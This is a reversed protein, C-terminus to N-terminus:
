PEYIGKWNTLYTSLTVSRTQSGETWSVIATVKRCSGATTCWSLADDSFAITRTFLTNAILEPCSGGLKWEDSVKQLCSTTNTSPIENWDAEKVVRIIEMGEKAYQLAQTRDKSMQGFRLTATTAVVLGTVLLIVIGVAVLAEVM